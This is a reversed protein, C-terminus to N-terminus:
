APRRALLALIGLAAVAALVGLLELRLGPVVSIDTGLVVVGSVLIAAAGIALSRIAMRVTAARPRRSSPEVGAYGLEAALLLGGAVVAAGADVVGDDLVLRLGYTAGGMATALFVLQPQRALVGLALVAAGGASLATLGDVFEGVAVVVFAMTAVFVLTAAAAIIV